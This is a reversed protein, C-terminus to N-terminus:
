KRIGRDQLIFDIVATAALLLVHDEDDAIDVDYTVSWALLRQVATALWKGGGRFEYERGMLDGRVVFHDGGEAGMRFCLAVAPTTLVVRPLGEARIEYESRLMRFRKQIVALSRGRNNRLSLRRGVLLVEGDISAVERGADDK